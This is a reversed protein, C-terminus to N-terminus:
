SVRIRVGTLPDWRRVLKRVAELGKSGSNCVIGNAAGEAVQVLVSCFQFDKEALDEVQDIQYPLNGHAADRDGQTITLTVAVALDVPEKMDHYVGMVYHQMKRQWVPFQRELIEGRRQRVGSPERNDVLQPVMTPKNVITELATVM